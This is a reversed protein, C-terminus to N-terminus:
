GWRIPKEVSNNNNNTIKLALGVAYPPEWALTSNSNYSSTEVVAMALMPDLGHRHRVGYSM